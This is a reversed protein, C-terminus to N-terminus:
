GQVSKGKTNSIEPCQPWLAGTEICPAIGNTAVSPYAVCVGVDGTVDRAEPTDVANGVTSRCTSCGLVVQAVPLLLFGWKFSKVGSVMPVMSNGLRRTM